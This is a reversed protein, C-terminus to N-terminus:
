SGVVHRLNNQLPQEGVLMRLDPIRIIEKDRALQFCMHINVGEDTGSGCVMGDSIWVRPGKQQSLWELAEYDVSNGGGFESIIRQLTNESVCKRDRAVVTFFGRGADNGAYAGIVAYPAIEICRRILKSSPRMSGSLDLLIAGAPELRRVRMKRRFVRGDIHARFPSAMYGVRDHKKAKRPNGIPITVEEDLPYEKPQMDPRVWEGGGGRGLRGGVHNEESVTVGYDKTLSEAGEFKAATKATKTETAKAESEKKEYHYNVHQGIYRGRKSPDAVSAAMTTAAGLAKNNSAKSKIPDINAVRTGVRKLVHKTAATVPKPKPRVVREVEEVKAITEKAVTGSDEEDYDRGEEENENPGVGAGKEEVPPPPAIPAPPEIDEVLLNMLHNIEDMMEQSTMDPLRHCADIVYEKQEPSMGTVDAIQEWVKTANPSYAESAAMLCAGFARIENETFADEVGDERLKAAHDVSGKLMGVDIPFPLEDITEAFASVNRMLKGNVRGDEFANIVDAPIGYEVEMEKLSKHESEVIHGLEHIRTLFADRTEDQPAVLIKHEFNVGAFGKGLQLEEPDMTKWGEELVETFAGRGRETGRESALVVGGGLLQELPSSNSATMKKSSM